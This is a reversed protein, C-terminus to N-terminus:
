INKIERNLLEEIEDVLKIVREADTKSDYRSKGPM